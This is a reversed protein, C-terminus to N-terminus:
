KGDIFDYTVRSIERIVRTAEDDNTDTSMVCLIYNNEPYYVIGCDHYGGKGNPLYFFGIKHSVAVDEPLGAPIKDKYQTNALISLGLESFPRRLYTSYYLSRFINSYKKPSIAAYNEQSTGLGMAIKANNFEELTLVDNVLTNAATNDSDRLMIEVLEKISINYGYGREWLNGSRSDVNVEKIVVQENMSLEGDQIKKLIAVMIPTKLLSAPVFTEKENIGVWAGTNLDEFYIGYTGTVDSENIIEEYMFRLDAYDVNYSKQTELFLDTEMWAIKPSILEFDYDNFDNKEMKKIKLFLFVNACLSLVLLSLVLILFFKKGFNIKIKSIYVGRLFLM